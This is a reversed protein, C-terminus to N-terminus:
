EEPQANSRPIIEIIAADSTGIPQPTRDDANSVQRNAARALSRENQQHAFQQLPFPDLEINERATVPALCFPHRQNIGRSGWTIEAVFGQQYRPPQIDRHDDSFFAISGTDEGLLFKPRLQVQKVVAKLM